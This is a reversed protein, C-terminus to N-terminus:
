TTPAWTVDDKWSGMPIPITLIYQVLDNAFIQNLLEINWCRDLTILQNLNWDDIDVDMNLYTPWVALPIKDM